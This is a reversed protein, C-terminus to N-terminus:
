INISFAPFTLSRRKLFNVYINRFEVSLFIHIYISWPMKDIIIDFSAILGMVNGRLDEWSHFPAAVAKAETFCLFIMKGWGKGLSQGDCMHSFNGIAIM